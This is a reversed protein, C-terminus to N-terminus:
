GVGLLDKPVVTVDTVESKRIYTKVRSRNPGILVELYWARAPIHSSNEAVVQEIGVVEGIRDVPLDV